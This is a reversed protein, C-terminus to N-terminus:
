FRVILSGGYTRPDGWYIVDGTIGPVGGIPLAHNRYHTNLLNNVYATLTFRGNPSTFSIRGNALTYAPQTLLYRNTTDQPTIYYYQLSTYRADIEPEISGGSPLQITYSASGNLTLHPARVFQKGSLNAGGNAVLLKDFRTYLIGASGTLRLHQVPLAELELEGGNVHAKQANQLYSVTAGGVAAPNSGVVNVQVDNYDYHFATANFNLKGNFWTSKYGGEFADLKEPAVALLAAPLAAATNFGGSKVGHSFKFYLLNNKDIHWAPTVDYTFADWTKTLKGSFTGPGGYSGTYSDWWRAYNSWSAAAPSSSALRSFDLKKTERSWRAGVTLKLSDTVSYTGSAFAAGSEATHHYATDSYAVPAASGALAPVAGDPLRASFTSSGITERFYYLGAIWNFRDGQPSALRLEQTWQRSGADVYGRSIELPTYDTDSPGKVDYREYGTISTLTLNGLSWNVHLSGGYQRTNSYEPANTDVADKDTPPAFGNRFIGNSAYSASTWYTGTTKYKRYHVSLLADITDTPKALLQGRFVADSIGNSRGDTFLNHFRGDRDEVHFSFRGALRDPALVAGVGAEVIKDDYSGYDAKVYNDNDGPNLTPRKSIINIAGGTTNKGWLTGQPGRLVEVREVDFLPLGTASANSIYVDDLYFGVPNALDLQQQGAGVGRIWWRPRGHQQTGASANPVLTLLESASRGLGGEKFVSDGFASVATPVDQLKEQRRQATVVIDLSSSQGDIAGDASAGAGGAGEPAAPAAADGNSTSPNAAAAPM